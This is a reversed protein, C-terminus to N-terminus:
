NLRFGFSQLHDAANWRQYSNLANAIWWEPGDAPGYRCDAEKMELHWLDHAFLWRGDKTLPQRLM